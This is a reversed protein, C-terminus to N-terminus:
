LVLLTFTPILYRLNRPLSPTPVTPLRYISQGKRRGAEDVGSDGAFQLCVILYSRLCGDGVTFGEVFRM